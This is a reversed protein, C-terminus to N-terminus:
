FHFAKKACGTYNKPVNQFKKHFWKKYIYGHKRLYIVRSIKVYKPYNRSWLTQLSNFFQEQTTPIWYWFKDGLLLPNLGNHSSDVHIINKEM